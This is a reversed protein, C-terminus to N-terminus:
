EKNEDNEEKTSAPVRGTIYDGKPPTPHLKEEEAEQLHKFLLTLGFFAAAGILSMFGWFYGLYVFIFIAAAIILACIICCIIRLTKFM